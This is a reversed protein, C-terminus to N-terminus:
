RKRGYTFNLAVISQVRNATGNETISRIFAEHIVDRTTQSAEKLIRWAPHDLRENLFAVAKAVDIFEDSVVKTDVVMAEFGTEELLTRSKAVTDAVVDYPLIIGHAAAAQAVIQSFASRSRQCTLHM